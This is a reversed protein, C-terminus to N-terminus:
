RGSGGSDLAAGWAPPLGCLLAILAFSTVPNNNM